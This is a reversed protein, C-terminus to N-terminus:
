GELDGAKQISFTASRVRPASITRQSSISVPYVSYYLALSYPKSVATWIRQKQEFDMRDMYIGMQPDSEETQNLQSFDILPHDGLAQSAKGLIRHVDAQKMGSQSNQSVYIVYSLTYVRPPLRQTGDVGTIRASSALEGKEVINYLYVALMLGSSEEAPSAADISLPATVPEPCLNDRLLRVLYGTIDAFVSYGAM